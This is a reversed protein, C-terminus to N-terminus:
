EALVGSRMILSRLAPSFMVGAKVRKWAINVFLSFLNQRYATRIRDSRSHRAMAEALAAASAFAYSYGEASSPSILGAAEGLLYNGIGGIDIDALGPRVLPCAHRLAPGPFRYGFDELRTKASAFLAAVTDRRRAAPPLAIGLLLEHKKPIIWGYFDTIGPHFFALYEEPFPSPEADARSRSEQLAVYRAESRIPMRTLRRVISGAGDAGVVMAADVHRIIKDEEVFVRWGEGNRELEVCRTGVSVEANRSALSLLWTEFAQRNINIYRRRYRRSEGTKLDLARVAVPQGSEHISDPVGLGLRRLIALADLAILGGCCKAPTGKDLSEKMGPRKAAYRAEVVLVSRKLGLLYALMAGAPGGGVIVLDYTGNTNM